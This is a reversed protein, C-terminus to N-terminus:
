IYDESNDKANDISREFNHSKLRSNKGVERLVKQIEPFPSALDIPRGNGGRGCPNSGMNLMQTLLGQERALEIVM